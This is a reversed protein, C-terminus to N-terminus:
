GTPPRTPIRAAVAGGGPLPRFLRGVLSFRAAMGPMARSCAPRARGRRPRQRQHRRGPRPLRGRLRPLRQAPPRRLDSARQDLLPRALVLRLQGHQALVRGRAEAWGRPGARSKGPRVADVDHEIAAVGVFAKATLPGLRKLYGVLAEAFATEATFSVCSAAGSAWRLYLRRLRRRRAAAPRRQLHRQAPRRDHGLLDALCPRPTPAAGLGGAMRSSAPEARRRTCAVAIAILPSQSRGRLGFASLNQQVCCVGRRLVFLLVPRFYFLPNVM